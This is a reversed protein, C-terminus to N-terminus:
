SNFENYRSQYLEIAAESEEKKEQYEKLKEENGNAEAQRIMTNIYELREREIGLLKDYQKLGEQKEEISKLENLQAFHAEQRKNSEQIQSNFVELLGNVLAPSTPINEKMYAEKERKERAQRQKFEFAQREKQKSLEVIKKGDEASIRDDHLQSNIGEIFVRESELM